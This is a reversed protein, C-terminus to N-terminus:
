PETQDPVDPGFRVGQFVWSTFFVVIFNLITDVSLVCTCVYVRVCCVCM